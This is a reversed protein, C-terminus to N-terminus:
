RYWRRVYVGKFGGQNVRKEYELICFRHANLVSFPPQRGRVKGEVNRDGTDTATYEEWEFDYRPARYMRKLVVHVEQENSAIVYQPRRDCDFDVRWITEDDEFNANTGRMCVHVTPVSKFRQVRTSTTRWRQEPGDVGTVTTSVSVCGM